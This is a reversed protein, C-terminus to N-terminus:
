CSTPVPDVFLAKLGPGWLVPDKIMRASFKESVVEGTRADELWITTRDMEPRTAQM